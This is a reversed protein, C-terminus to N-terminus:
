LPNWLLVILTVLTVLLATGLGFISGIILAQSIPRPIPKARLFLVTPAETQEPLGKSRASPDSEPLAIPEAPALTVALETLHHSLEDVGGYRQDRDKALCRAIIATLEVPVDSRLEELRRPPDMLISAAITGFSDGSFPLEGTLLEFMTVGLSWIDARRDVLKSCRIQEPAM